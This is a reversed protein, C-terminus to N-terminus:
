KPLKKPPDDYGHLLIATEIATERATIIIAEAVEVSTIEGLRGSESAAEKM